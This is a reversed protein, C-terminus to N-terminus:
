EAEEKLEFLLELAKMPTIKNPDIEKLKKVAPHDAQKQIPMLPLSQQRQKKEAQDWAHQELRALLDKSRVILQHPLGALKAVEIGYSRSIGGEIVQHLFVIGDEQESVAVSFNKAKKMDAVVEILEHYHTAFLTKAGIIDHLYETIAWALSLGDYTSTGRGLEDLIVLSKETAHHLIYSAEQMEVMFTSRGRALNDSAGVRTFIRDMVPWSMEKAPVYSGIQSLLVILANQRLYSSKGSMNPGTLLHFCTQEGMILDNPIYPDSQLSEIVPHRGQKIMLGEKSIQPRCYNRDAALQAYSALVDLQALSRATERLASLHAFVESRLEEFLQQEILIMKDQAGLIKEEYEKLEPTIFREANVLTQKRIYDQPVNALNAKSIEIHYGFVKNFKVKLSAIGTREREKEQLNSIWEKGSTSLVRLEDLEAHVGERIYGGDQMLVPPDDQLTAEIRAVLDDHTHLHQLLDALLTSKLAAPKLTEKITPIKKVAEKVNFLDRPNVRLTGVKGLLRELDCIGSLQERVEGRVPSQQMFQDVAVLREEIKKADLLPHSLWWRLLRGGMPTVTQDLVSILTGENQGTQQNSFLELNRITSEDLIMYDGPQYREISQIHGLATRQTEQLYAVLHAAVSILLPEHELGFGDLGVTHFQETLLEKKDKWAPLAFESVTIYGSLQDSWSQKQALLLEAPRLRSIEDMLQAIGELLAVQFTGTTIDVLGLAFKDQDQDVACLYNAEKQSLISDDFTTGPTVIRTVERRVPGKGDPASLQDCVAVKKGARTLKAIYQEGARIPAGCMAIENETGKGRATLTLDLIRSAEVADDGFLEYFDGMQFFLVADAHQKKIQFYQELMPTM